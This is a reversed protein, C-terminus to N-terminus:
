AARSWWFRVNFLVTIHAKAHKFCTMPIGCKAHTGLAAWGQVVGIQVEMSMVKAKGEWECEDSKIHKREGRYLSEVVNM